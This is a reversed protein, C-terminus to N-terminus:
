IPCCSTDETYLLYYVAPDRGPLSGSARGAAQTTIAEPVRRFSGEQLFERGPIDPQGHSPEREVPLRSETLQDTSFNM